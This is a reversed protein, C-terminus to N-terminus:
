DFNSTANHGCSSMESRTIADVLGYSITRCVAQPKLMATSKLFMIISDNQPSLHIGLEHRPDISLQTAMHHHVNLFGHFSHDIHGLYLNPPEEKAEIDSVATSPLDHAASRILPIGFGIDTDM